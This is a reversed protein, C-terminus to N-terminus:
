IGTTKGTDTISQRNERVRRGRVEAAVAAPKVMGGITM